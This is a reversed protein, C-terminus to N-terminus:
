ADGGEKTLEPQEKSAKVAELFKVYSNERKFLYDLIQNFKPNMMRFQVKKDKRILKTYKKGARSETDIKIYYNGTRHKKPEIVEVGDLTNKNVNM